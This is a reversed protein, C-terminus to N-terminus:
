LLMGMWWLFGCFLALFILPALCLGKFFENTIQLYAYLYIAFLVIPSLKFFWFKALKDKKDNM